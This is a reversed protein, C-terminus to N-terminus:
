IKKRVFLGVLRAVLIALYLQGFIAEVYSLTIAAGTVPTVDGYGLTTLTIYSFYIFPLFPNKDTSFVELGSFSGPQMLELYAFLSAFALGVMLYINVAGFMLDITVIQSRAVINGFLALAVSFLFLATFLSRIGNMWPGPFFLHGLQGYIAIMALAFALRLLLAQEAMTRVAALIVLVFAFPLVWSLHVSQHVFPNVLILVMMIALLVQHAYAGGFAKKLSLKM